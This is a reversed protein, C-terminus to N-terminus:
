FDEKILYDILDSKNIKDKKAKKVIQKVQKLLQEEYSMEITDLPEDNLIKTVDNTKIEGEDLKKLDDDSLQGQQEKRQITRMSLNYENALKLLSETRKMGLKTYLEIKLNIEKALESTTKIRQTNSEILILNEIHKNVKELVLGIIKKLGLKKHARLRRHGALLLLEDNEQKSVIIPELQGVNLISLMLQDVDDTDYFNDENEIISDVDLELINNKQSIINNVDDSMKESIDSILKGLLNSDM